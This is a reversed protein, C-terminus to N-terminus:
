LRFANLSLLTFSSLLDGSEKQDFAKGESTSDPLYKAPLYIEKSLLLHIRLQRIQVQFIYFDSLQVENPQEGGGKPGHLLAYIMVTIILGSAISAGLQSVKQDDKTTTAAAGCTVFVVLFTAVMEKRLFGHPYVHFLAAVKLQQNDPTKTM